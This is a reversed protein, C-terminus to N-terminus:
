RSKLPRGTSQTQRAGHPEMCTQSAHNCGASRQGKCGASCPHQGKCSHRDASTWLWGWCRDIPAEAQQHTRGCNQKSSGSSSHRRTYTLSTSYTVPSDCCTPQVPSAPQRCSSNSADARNRKHGHRVGASSQLGRASSRRGGRARLGLSARCATLLAGMRRRAGSLQGGAWDAQLPQILVDAANHGGHAVVPPCEGRLELWRHWCPAAVRCATACCGTSAARVRGQSRLDCLRRGAREM